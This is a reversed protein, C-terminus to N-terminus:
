GFLKRMFRMMSSGADYVKLSLEKRGPLRHQVSNPHAGRIMESAQQPDEALVRYTLTAPLMCEVKVDYYYKPKPENLKAKKELEEKAKKVKAEKALRQKTEEETEPIKFNPIDTM